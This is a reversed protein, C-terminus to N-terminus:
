AKRGRAKERVERFEGRVRTRPRRAAPRAPTRVHKDRFVAFSAAVASSAVATPTFTAAALTTSSVASATLIAAALALASAAGSSAASFSAAAPVQPLQRRTHSHSKHKLESSEWVARRCRLHTLNLPGKEM